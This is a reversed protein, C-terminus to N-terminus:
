AQQDSPLPLTVRGPQEVMKVDADGHAIVQVVFGAVQGRAPRSADAIDRGEMSNVAAVRAAQNNEQDRVSMLARVNNAQEGTRLVHLCENWYALVAPKRLAQYAANESFGAAKAADRRNDGHFVQRDIMTRVKRTLGNSGRRKRETEPAIRNPKRSVARTQHRQPPAIDVSTM